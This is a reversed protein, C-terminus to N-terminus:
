AQIRRGDSCFLKIELFDDFYNRKAAVPLLVRSLAKDASNLDFWKNCEFYYSTNTM